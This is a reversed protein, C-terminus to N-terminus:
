EYLKESNFATSLTSALVSKQEGPVEAQFIYGYLVTQLTRIDRRTYMQVLGSSDIVLMSINDTFGVENLQELFTDDALLDSKAGENLLQYAEVVTHQKEKIYYPELFFANGIWSALLVSTMLGIFILAM